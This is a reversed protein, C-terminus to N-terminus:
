RLHALTTIVQSLRKGHTQSGTPDSNAAFIRIITNIKTTKRHFGGGTSFKIRLLHPTPCAARRTLCDSSTYRFVIVGNFLCESTLMLLNVVNIYGKLMSVAEAGPIHLQVQHRVAVNLALVKM